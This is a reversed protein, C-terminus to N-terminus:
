PRAGVRIGLRRQEEEWAWSGVYPTCVKPREVRPPTYSDIVRMTSPDGSCYAAAWADPLEIIKWSAEGSRAPRYTHTDPQIFVPSNSGNVFCGHKM